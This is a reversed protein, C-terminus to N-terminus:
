TLLGVSLVFRSLYACIFLLVLPAAKCRSGRDKWREHAGPRLRDVCGVSPCHLDVANSSRTCNTMCKKLRQLLCRCVFLGSGGGEEFVISFREAGVRTLMPTTCSAHSTNSSLCAGTYVCAHVRMGTRTCLCARAHM